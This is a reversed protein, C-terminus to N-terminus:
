RILCAPRTREALLAGLLLFPFIFVDRLKNGRQLMIIACIKLSLAPMLLLQIRFRRPIQDFILPNRLAFPNHGFAGAVLLDGGFRQGGAGFGVYDEVGDLVGHDGELLVAGGFDM